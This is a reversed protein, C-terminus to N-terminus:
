TVFAFEFLWCACLLSSFVFLTRQPLSPSLAAHTQDSVLLCLFLFSAPNLTPTIAHWLLLTVLTAFLLILSRAAFTLDAKGLRFYVKVLPSLAM